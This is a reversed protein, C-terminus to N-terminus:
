KVSTIFIGCLIIFVGIIQNMTYKEKFIFISVLVLMIMGVAKVFVSNLLPNNYYKDLHFIFISSFVTLFALIFICVYELTTLMSYKGFMKSFPTNNM